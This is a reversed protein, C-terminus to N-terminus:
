SEMQAEETKSEEKGTETQIGEEEDDDDEDGIQYSVERKPEAVKETNGEGKAEELMNANEAEDRKNEEQASSM